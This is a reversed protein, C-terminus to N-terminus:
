IIAGQALLRDATPLKRWRLNWLLIKIKPINSCWIEKALPDHPHRRQMTEVINHQTPTNGKAKWNFAKNTDCQMRSLTQPPQKLVAKWM